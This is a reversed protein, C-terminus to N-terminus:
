LWRRVRRQYDQYDNGFKRLLIEEEPLIQFKTLYIIFCPIMLLGIFNGFWIAAGAVALAQGVYMPNRSFKFLGSSVLAATRNPSLPSFTTKRHIFLGICILDIVAGTSILVIALISQWPFSFALSPLQRALLWIVGVSILAVIPPPILLKM